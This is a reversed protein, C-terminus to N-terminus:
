VAAPVGLESMLGEVRRRIDDRIPRVEALSKGSPDDLEWDVYIRSLPGSGFFSAPDQTTSESARGTLLMERGFM